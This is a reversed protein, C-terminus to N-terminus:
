LFGVAVVFRWCQQGHHNGELCTKLPKSGIFIHFAPVQTYVYFAVSCFVDAPM